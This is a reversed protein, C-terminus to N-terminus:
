AVGCWSSTRLHTKVCRSFTLTGWVVGFQCVSVISRVIPVLLLHRHYTMLLWLLWWFQSAHWWRTVHGYTPPSNLNKIHSFKNDKIFIDGPYEYIIYRVIFVCFFFCCNLAKLIDSLPTTSRSFSLSRSPHQRNLISNFIQFLNM